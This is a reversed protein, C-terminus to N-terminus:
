KAQSIDIVNDEETIQNILQDMDIDNNQKDEITNTEIKTTTNGLIRNIIYCNADFRVKDSSKKDNAIEVVNKIAQGLKNVLLTDAEDIIGTKFDRSRKELEAKFEENKKWKYIVRSTCGVTDAIEQITMTGLILYDITEIQQTTLM